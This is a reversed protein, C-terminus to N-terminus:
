SAVTYQWCIRAKVRDWEAVANNTLQMAFCFKFAFAFMKNYKQFHYQM